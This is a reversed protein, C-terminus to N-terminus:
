PKKNSFNVLLRLRQRIPPTNLYPVGDQFNPLILGHWHISTEVDMNNTVNIEATDGETFTLTPGPISDNVAMAKRDEGSFSVMKENISLNYSKAFGTSSILVLFIFVTLKM